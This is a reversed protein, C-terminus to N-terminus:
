AESRKVSVADIVQTCYKFVGFTSQSIGTEFSVTAMSIAGFPVSTTFSGTEPLLTWKSM